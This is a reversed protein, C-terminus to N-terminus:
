QCSFDDEINLCVSQRQLQNQVKHSWFVQSPDHLGEVFACKILRDDDPLNNIRNPYRLIHQWWHLRLPFRGCEALVIVNATKDRICLFHKLCQRHLLEAKDGIGDEGGWVNCAYSVMPQVLSDFLKCRLAPDSIRLIYM